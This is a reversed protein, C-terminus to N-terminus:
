RPARGKREGTSWKFQKKFRKGIGWLGAPRKRTSGAATIAEEGSPPLEEKASPKRSEKESKKQEGGMVRKKGAELQKKQIDQYRQRWQALFEAKKMRLERLRKEEEQQIKKIRRQGVTQGIGLLEEPAIPKALIQRKGEEILEGGIELPM